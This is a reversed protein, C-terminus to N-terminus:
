SSAPLMHYVRERIFALGRTDFVVIGAVILLYALFFEWRPNIYFVAVNWIISYVDATLLSLNAFTASSYFFLVPMGSYVLVMALGFLMQYAVASDSWGAQFSQHLAPWEVCWLQILSFLLGCPPMCALYEVVPLWSPANPLLPETISRLREPHHEEEQAEVSSITDYAVSPPYGAVNPSLPTAASYAHGFAVPVDDDMARVMSIDGNDSSRRRNAADDASCLGGGENGLAAGRGLASRPTDMGGELHVTDDLEDVKILKECAVNSIAYCASSVICLLDGLLPNSASASRSLGDADLGILLGLGAVAIFAGIAHYRTYRVRLFVYSLVMVFPITCCDLLQVSTMDTYQYAKVVVYNAELDVVAILPYRWLRSLPEFNRFAGHHPPQERLRRLMIAYTPVFLISIWLYASASQLLPFSRDQNVLLTTFVGTSSVAFSVVQGLVLRKSLLVAKWWSTEQVQSAGPTTM